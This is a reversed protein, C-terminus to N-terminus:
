IAWHGVEDAGGEDTEKECPRGLSISLGPADVGRGGGNTGPVHM